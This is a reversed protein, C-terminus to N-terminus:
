VLANEKFICSFYCSEPQKQLKSQSILLSKLLYWWSRWTLCPKKSYQCDTQFSNFQRDYFIELHFGGMGLSDGLVGGLPLPKKRRGVGGLVQSLTHSSDEDAEALWPSAALDPFDSSLVRKSSASPLRCPGGRPLVRMGQSSWSGAFQPRLLFVISSLTRLRQTPTETEKGRLHCKNSSLGIVEAEKKHEVVRTQHNLWARGCVQAHRKSRCAGVFMECHFSSNRM